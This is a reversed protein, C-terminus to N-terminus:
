KHDGLWQSVGPAQSRDLQSLSKVEYHMECRYTSESSVRGYSHLPCPSGPTHTPPDPTPFSATLAPLRQDLHAAYQYM